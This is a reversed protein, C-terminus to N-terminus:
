LTLGRPVRRGAHPRYSRVREATLGHERVTTRRSSTTSIPLLLPSPRRSWPPEQNCRLSGSPALLCIVTPGSRPVISPVIVGHPARPPPVTVVQHRGAHMFGWVALLGIFVALRLRRAM